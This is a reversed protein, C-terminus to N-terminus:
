HIFRAAKKRLVSSNRIKIEIVTKINNKYEM